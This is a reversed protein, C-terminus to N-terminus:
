QPLLVAHFGQAGHTVRVRATAGREVMVGPGVFMLQGVEPVPREREERDGDPTAAGDGGDDWGRPGSLGEAERAEDVDAWSTTDSYVGGGVFEFERSIVVMHALGAQLVPLDFDRQWTEEMRQSSNTFDWHTILRRQTLPWRPVQSATHELKNAEPTVLARWSSVNHGAVTSPVSVYSGGIPSHVVQLYVRVAAPVTIVPVPGGACLRGMGQARWPGQLIADLVRQTDHLAATSGMRAPTGLVDHVVVRPRSLHRTAECGQHQYGVRVVDAVGSLGVTATAMLAAWRERECSFVRTAGAHAAWVALTGTGSGVDLVEVGDEECPEGAQAAATVAASLASRHAKRWWGDNLYKLTDSLLATYGGGRAALWQM